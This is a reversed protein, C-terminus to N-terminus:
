LDKQKVLSQKRTIRGRYKIFMKVASLIHHLNAKSLIKNRGAALHAHYARANTVYVVKWGARWLRCCLDEDEFYLFFREDMLGVQGLATKRLLMVAGTVWDVETVPGFNIGHMMYDNVAPLNKFVKDLHLARIILVRFSAFRRRSPQVTGDFNLLQPGAAGIQPDAAMADVLTTIMGPHCIVDPNILLYYEFEPNSKIAQNINRAFGQPEPNKVCDVTPHDVALWEATAEDPKNNIVIVQNPENFIEGPLSTIADRIMHTHQHNIIIVALKM